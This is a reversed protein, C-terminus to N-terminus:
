VKISTNQGEDNDKETSPFLIDARIKITSDKIRNNHELYQVIFFFTWFIRNIIKTKYKNILLRM